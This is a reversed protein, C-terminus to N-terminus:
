KDKDLVNVLKGQQYLEERIIIGLNNRYYWTGNKKNQYYHGDSILKNDYFEYVLTGLSDNQVCYFKTKSELDENYSYGVIMTPIPHGKYKSTDVAPISHVTLNPFPNSILIVEDNLIITDIHSFWFGISKGYENQSFEYLKGSEGLIVFNYSSSDSSYSEKSYYQNFLSRDIDGNLTTIKIEFQSFSSLYM